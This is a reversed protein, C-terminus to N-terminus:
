QEWYVHIIKSNLFLQAVWVTLFNDSVLFSKNYLLMCITGKAYTWIYKESWAKSYSHIFTSKHIFTDIIFLYTCTDTRTLASIYGCPHACIKAFNKLFYGYVIIRFNRKWFTTEWKNSHCFSLGAYHENSNEIIAENLSGTHPREGQLGRKIRKWEEARM